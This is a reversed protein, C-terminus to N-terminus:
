FRIPLAVSLTADPADDTLGMAGTITLLVRRSIISSAGVEFLGEVGDSGAVGRGDVEAEGTFNWITGLRLSTEPSAALISRLSFGITDGPDIDRGEKSDALELTYFVSGVFVLPDQSKVATATQTLAHFGNGLTIGGSSADDDGTPARWQVSALLDPVWDREWLLQTRLGVRVDGLGFRSEDEETGGTVARREFTFPVDLDAQLNWPLGVSVDLSADLEDRRTEARAATLGGDQRVLAIVSSGEFTYSLGPEVEFTGPPLLLGGERVLSRELATAAADEDPEVVETPRGPTAAVSPSPEPAPQPSPARGVATAGSAGELARVRQQLNAILADRQKLARQLDEVTLPM